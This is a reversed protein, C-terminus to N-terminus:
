CIYIDKYKEKLAERDVKPLKPVKINPKFKERYIYEKINIKKEKTTDTQCQTPSLAFRHTLTYLNSTYGGNERKRNEKSIIGKETLVAVARIATRRSCKCDKAITGYSPFSEGKANARRYFYLAILKESKTLDTRDFINDSGKFYSM